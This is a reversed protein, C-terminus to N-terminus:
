LNLVTPSEELSLSMAFAEIEEKFINGGICKEVYV